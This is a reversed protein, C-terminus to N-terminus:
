VVVVAGGNENGDDLVRDRRSYVVPATASERAPRPTERRRERRPEAQSRIKASPPPQEGDSDSSSSSDSSSDQGGGRVVVVPPRQPPGLQSMPPLYPYGSFGPRPFSVPRLQDAEIRGGTGWCDCLPGRCVNCNLLDTIRGGCVRFVCYLLALGVFVSVFILAIISSDM